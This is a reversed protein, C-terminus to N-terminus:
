PQGGKGRHHKKNAWPTETIYGMPVRALKEAMRTRVEGIVAFTAEHSLATSWNMCVTKIILGGGAIGSWILYFSLEDKMGDLLSIVIQSVAFYPVLGGAVGIIALLVSAVYRVRHPKAFGLLRSYASESNSEEM